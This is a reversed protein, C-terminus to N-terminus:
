AAIAIDIDPARRYQDKLIRFVVPFIKDSVAMLARVGAAKRSSQQRRRQYLAIFETSEM